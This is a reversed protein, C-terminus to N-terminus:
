GNDKDTADLIDLLERMRRRYRIFWSFFEDWYAHSLRHEDYWVALEQRKDHRVASEATLHLSGDEAEYRIVQRM